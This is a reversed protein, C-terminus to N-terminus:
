RVLTEKARDLEAKTSEIESVKEFADVDYDCNEIRNKTALAELDDEDEILGVQKLYNVTRKRMMKEDEKYTKDEKAKKRIYEAAKVFLRIRREQEPTVKSMDWGDDEPPKEGYKDHYELVDKGQLKM